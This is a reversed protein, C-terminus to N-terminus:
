MMGAGATELIDIIGKGTVDIARQLQMIEWDDKVKRLPSIVETVCQIAIQPYRERVPQLRFMAYSIPANLEQQGINSYIRNIMPCFMSLMAEFEDLYIVNNIGSRERAEEVELKKGEWVVREPDNRQIFLYERNGNGSKFGFYIANPANLGTLYLFNNDQKFKELKAEREAFLIVADLEKLSNLLKERRPIVIEQKMMFEM